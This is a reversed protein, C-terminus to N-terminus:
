FRLFSKFSLRITRESYRTLALSRVATLDESDVEFNQDFEKTSNVDIEKTQLRMVTLLFRLLVSKEKKVLASSLFIESKSCPAKIWNSGEAVEFSEVQSFELYSAVSSKMMEKTLHSSSYIM